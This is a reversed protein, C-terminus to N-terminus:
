KIETSRRFTTSELKEEVPLDAIPDSSSEVTKPSSFDFKQLRGSLTFIIIMLWDIKEITRIKASLAFVTISKNYTQINTHYFNVLM